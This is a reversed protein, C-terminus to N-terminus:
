FIATVVTKFIFNQAPSLFSIKPYFWFDMISYTTNYLTLQDVNHISFGPLANTSSTYNYLTQSTNHVHICIKMQVHM